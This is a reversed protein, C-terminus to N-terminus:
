VFALPKNIRVFVGAGGRAAIPISEKVLGRADPKTEGPVTDALDPIM